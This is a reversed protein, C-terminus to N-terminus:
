LLPEYRCTGQTTSFISISIMLVETRYGISVQITSEVAGSNSPLCQDQSRIPSNSITLNARSLPNPRISDFIQANDSKFTSMAISPSRSPSITPGNQQASLVQASTPPTKNEDVPCSPNEDADDTLDIIVVPSVVEPLRRNNAKVDLSPTAETVQIKGFDDETLDTITLLPSTPSRRHRNESEVNAKREPFLHDIISEKSEVQIRNSNVVPTASAPSHGFDETPLDNVKRQSALRGKIKEETANENVTTSPNDRPDAITM